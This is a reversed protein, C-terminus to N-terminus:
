ASSRSPRSMRGSSASGAISASRAVVRSYVEIAQAAQGLMYHAVGLNCLAEDYDPLAAGPAKDLGFRFM